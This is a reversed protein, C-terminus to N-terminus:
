NKKKGVTRFHDLEEYRIGALKGEGDFLEVKKLYDLQRLKPWNVYQYGNKNLQLLSNLNFLLCGGLVLLNKLDTISGRPYLLIAFFVLFSTGMFYPLLQVYPPRRDVFPSNLSDQFPKYIGLFLDYSDQRSGDKYNNKYYRTISNVLDNLAGAKTRKGTRTFDTKLAGTGSYACSVADANDAWFNQFFLNFSPDLLEWPTDNEKSLYGSRTLQNQLVWRALTSQVVNTRDLCDMCNTRVIKNQTSRITQSALDFHFYNDSTYGLDILRELLLKIRDWRMKRCEHHFDFYIYKVNKALAPPLNEVAAEYAEKVPKEYGKQNVLNVLFNEGYLETQETFHKATADLSPQSSIVLNPKYKLNNIEGWYVPVSGRTQLFSFIQQDKTTFIQETENFNAVNGDEDIGRRFYRTGARSVSRRTLLAFDLSHPGNFSASHSKFYGYIIPTLFERADVLDASLYGNWWFRRDYTLDKTTYQRQLSNTLDYKNGISYFLTANNLQQKLLELYQSEESNSKAFDNKSLPLIKYSTIKAIEGGLVSGTVSHKDAIIVYKNIKLKITGIICSIATAPTGLNLRSYIGPLSDSVEVGSTGSLYLYKQSVNDYFVHTGDTSTAHFFGM